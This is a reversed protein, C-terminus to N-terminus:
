TIGIVHRGVREMEHEFFADYDTIVDHLHGFLEYSVTGFVSMWARLARALVADPLEAFEVLPAMATRVRRPVPMPDDLGLEGREIGDRLIGVLARAM